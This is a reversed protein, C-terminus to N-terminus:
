KIDKLQELLKKADPLERADPPAISVFKELDAKAEAMKKRSSTPAPAITSSTRRRAPVAQVIKDLTAIADDAKGANISRSPRPQHLADSGQGADHRGVRSDEAGRGQRGEAHLARRPVDEHRHRGTGERRRDEHARHGQRLEERERLDDGRLREASLGVSVQRDLDEIIKRAEPIKGAKQLEVAKQMEAQLEVNPDVAPAAKTLKMDIPPNRNAAVEVTMRQPDFGDKLSSSTGSGTTLDKWSGSARTTRRTGGEATPRRGQGGAGPCGACAQGPRRPDQRQHTRKGQAAGVRQGRSPRLSSDTGRKTSEDHPRNYQSNNGPKEQWLEAQIAGVRAFREATLSRDPQEAMRAQAATPKGPAKAPPKRAPERRPRARAHHSSGPRPRQRADAPRDDQDDDVRQAGIPQRDVAIRRSPRRGQRRERPLGDHEVAGVRM